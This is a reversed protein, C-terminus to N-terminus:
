KAMKMKLFACGKGIQSIIKGDVKLTAESVRQIVAKM